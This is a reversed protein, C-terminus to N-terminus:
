NSNQASFACNVVLQKYFSLKNMLPKDFRKAKM